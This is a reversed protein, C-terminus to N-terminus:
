FINLPSFLFSFVLWIGVMVLMLCLLTTAAWPYVNANTPHVRFSRPRWEWFVGWFQWKWSLFGLHIKKYKKASEVTPDQGLSSPSCSFFTECFNVMWITLNYRKFHLSFNKGKYGAPVVSNSRRWHLNKSSRLNSTKCWRLTCWTLYKHVL